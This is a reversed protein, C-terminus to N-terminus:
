GVIKVESIHTVVRFDEFDLEIQTGTRQMELWLLIADLAHERDPFASLDVELDDTNEDHSIGKMMQSESHWELRREGAVGM